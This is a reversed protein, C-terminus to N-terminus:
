KTFVYFTIMAKKWGQLQFNIHTDPTMRNHDFSGISSLDKTFSNNIKFWLCFGLMSLTILSTKKVDKLMFYNVFDTILYLKLRSTILQKYIWTDVLRLNIYNHM